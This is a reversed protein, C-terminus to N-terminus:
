YKSLDVVIFAQVQLTTYAYIHDSVMTRKQKWIHILQAMWSWEARGTQKQM